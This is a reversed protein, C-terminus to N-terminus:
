RHGLLFPIWVKECHLESGLHSHYTAEHRVEEIELRPPRFGDCGSAGAGSIWLRAYRPWRDAPCSENLVREVQGQRILVDWSFTETLISGFLAVRRFVLDPNRQLATGIALSGFSHGIAGSSLGFRAHDQYARVILPVVEALLGNTFPRIARRIHFGYDVPIYRILKDQLITTIHKQWPGHTNMGHVSVAAGRYQPKGGPVDEAIRNYEDLKV